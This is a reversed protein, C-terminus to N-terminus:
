SVPRTSGTPLDYLDFANSAHVMKPTGTNNAAPPAEAVLSYPVFSDSSTRSSTTMTTSSALRSSDFWNMSAGSNCPTDGATVPIQQCAVFMETAKRKALNRQVKSKRHYYSRMYVRFYCRKCRGLGYHPLDIHPCDTITARRRGKKTEAPGEGEEEEQQVEEPPVNRTRNTTTSTGTGGACDVATSTHTRSSRTASTASDSSIEDQQISPAGHNNMSFSVSGKSPLNEEVELKLLLRATFPLV